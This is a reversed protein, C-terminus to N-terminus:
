SFAEMLDPQLCLLRYPSKLILSQHCFAWGMTPWEGDGQSTNRPEYSAAQALWLSCALLYNGEMAKADASAELNGETKFVLRPKM